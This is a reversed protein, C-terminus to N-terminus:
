NASSRYNRTEHQPMSANHIPLMQTLYALYVRDGEKVLHGLGM